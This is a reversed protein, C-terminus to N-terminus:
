YKLTITGGCADVAGPEWPFGRLRIEVTTSINPDIEVYGHYTTWASYGDSTIAQALVPISQTGSCPVSSGGQIVSCQLAGSQYKSNGSINMQGSWIIELYTPNSGLPIFTENFMVVDWGNGADATNCLAVGSADTNARFFVTGAPGGIYPQGDSTSSKASSGSSWAGLSKQGTPPNSEGTAEEMSSYRHKRTGRKTDQAGAVSAVFFLVVSLAFLKRTM